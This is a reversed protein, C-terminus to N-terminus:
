ISKKVMDLIQQAEHSTRPRRSVRNDGLSKIFRALFFRDDGDIRLIPLPQSEINKIVQLIDQTDKIHPNYGCIMEAAIVGISFIDARIDIERKRNRFQEGASYGVTCPGFPSQSDTLSELDLHRSIGFDILWYDGNQDIIINEPKVDRHVINCNECERLIDLMSEIFHIVQCIDFHPFSSIAERLSKGLVFEEVVWVIQDDELAESNVNSCIINPIRQHNVISAARIERATRKQSDKTTKIIKLVLEEDTDQRVGHFVLKQGGKGILGKTEFPFPLNRVVFDIDAIGSPEM